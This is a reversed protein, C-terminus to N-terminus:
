TKPHMNQGEQVVKHRAIIMAPNLSIQAYRVSKFIEEKWFQGTLKIHYGTLLIYYLINLYLHHHQSYLLLM